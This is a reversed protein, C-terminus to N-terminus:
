VRSLWTALLTRESGRNTAYLQPGDAYWRYLIFQRLLRLRGVSADTRHLVSSVPSAVGACDILRALRVAAGSHSPDSRVRDEPGDSASCARGGAGRLDGGCRNDHELNYLVTCLAYRARSQPNTRLFGDSAM